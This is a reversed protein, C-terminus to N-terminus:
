FEQVIELQRVKEKFLMMFVKTMLLTTGLGKGNDLMKSNLMIKVIGNM